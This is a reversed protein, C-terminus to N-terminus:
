WYCEAGNGNTWSCDQCTETDRQCWACSAVGSNECGWMGPDVTACERGVTFERAHITGKGAGASDTAFSEVLLEELELRIKRM